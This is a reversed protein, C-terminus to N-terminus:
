PAPTTVTAEDSRPRGVEAREASPIPRIPPAPPTRDAADESPLGALLSQAQEDPRYTFPQLALGLILACALIRTQDYLDVLQVEAARM